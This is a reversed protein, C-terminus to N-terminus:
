PVMGKEAAMRRVLAEAGHPQGEVTVIEGAEMLMRLRRLDDQLVLDPEDGALAALARLLIGREHGLDLMVRLETGRDRPAPAFLLTIREGPTNAHELVLREGAIDEVIDFAWAPSGGAPHVALRGGGRDEVRGVHPAFLPLNDPDRVFAHVEEPARNITVTREIRTFREAVASLVERPSAPESDFSLDGRTNVGLAAYLRCRGTVGREVLAGGLIAVLFGPVSRRGLGWLMLASGGIVSVWREKTAVNIPIARRARRPVAHVEAASAVDSTMM